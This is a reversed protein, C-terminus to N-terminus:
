QENVNTTTTQHQQRQKDYKCYNNTTTTKSLQQRPQRETTQQQQHKPRPPSNSSPLLNAKIPFRFASCQWLFLSWRVRIDASLRLLQRLYVYSKSIISSQSRSRDRNISWQWKLFRITRSFSHNFKLNQVNIEFRNGRLRLKPIQTM